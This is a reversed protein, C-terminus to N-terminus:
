LSFSNLLVSKDLHFSTFSCISFNSFSIALTSPLSLLSFNVALAGLSTTSSSLALPSFYLSIYLDTISLMSFRFY